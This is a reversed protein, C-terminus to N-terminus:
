LTVVHLQMLGYVFVPAAATISDIRDLVGGHGPLINSSDKLGAHRKFLSETLDGVISFIATLLGLVVFSGAQVDLWRAALAAAIMSSLLGGAVGEWTKGPSVRPALKHKGLARGTFYAGIDTATVILLLCLILEGAHQHHLLLTKLAMWLPFLVLAGALAILWRTGLQPVFVIWCAALVWWAIAVLMLRQVNGQAPMLYTVLMLAMFLVVYFVRVARHRAFLGGWEWAGLVIVLALVLVIWPAPAFLLIALLPLGLLLATIVRQRLM